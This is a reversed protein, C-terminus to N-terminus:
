EHSANTTNISDNDDEQDKDDFLINIVTNTIMRELVSKRLAILTVLIIIYIASVIGFGLFMSHTLEAFYYGAMISLFLFIFFVLVAVVLVAFMVAVLKSIKEVTKLKLLLLRDQVYEQIKEGSEKFFQEQTEM